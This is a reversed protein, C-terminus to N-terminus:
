RQGGKRRVDDVWDLLATKTMFNLICEPKISAALAAAASFEMFRLQSPGHSDTGLSIKCGAKKALRLLEVNLDQRDPYGDIEVAKDLEAAVGFVKEWDANLGSRFNYIRGRPHGLIQIDPNRLAAVYRETQDDSKRLSSHFCGLVLDLKRLCGSDMDGKGRPNLNMEVSRLVAIRGRENIVAIERGQQEVQEENIGGAIKLGKTHDTIAIYEYNREVAAASMEEITGEGDSWTTHMQLDGKVSKLWAPKKALIRRAQCLTLFGARLPVPQVKSPPADLWQRILKEIYPGVGNLETLTAGMRALEAAEIEWLFARRAARRLARQAPPPTDEAKRALLEGITQNELTLVIKPNIEYRRPNCGRNSESVQKSSRRM